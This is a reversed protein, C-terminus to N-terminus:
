KKKFNIQKILNNAVAYINTENINYIIHHHVNWKNIVKKVLSDRVVWIMILDPFVILKDIIETWGYAELELGGIEDIVVIDNKKLNLSDIAKKGFSIGKPNFYFHKYKRWNEFGTRNCLLVSEGTKVNIVDFSSRQDNEWFGKSIIGGISFKKQKLIDILDIVFTTKGSGKTGTIIFVM